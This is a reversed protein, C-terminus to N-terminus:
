IGGIGHLYNIHADMKFVIYPDFHGVSITPEIEVGLVTNPLDLNPKSYLTAWIDDALDSVTTDPDVNALAYLYIECVLKSRFKDVTGQVRGSWKEQPKPLGGVLAMVPLQTSAFNGLDAFSPRVRQVTKISDLDEFLLRIAELIQERKSNEAM